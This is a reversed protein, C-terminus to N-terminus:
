QHPEVMYGSKTLIKRVSLCAPSNEPLTLLSEGKLNYSKVNNDYDIRGLYNEGTRKFHQEAKTDFEYNGVLYLNKYNIGATDAIKKVREIHKLSKLSPDLVLFLDDMRPIVKRNLHELGAPSDVIINTYNKGISPIIFEFLFNASRYDGRTWRPGLSILDFKKSTYQTYWKFLLPIKVFAPGGGLETFADEDEIDERLDSVTKLQKEEGAETKIKQAELDVGLMDALNQDPDIDLLLLPSALYKCALAVFTSKGTGGRGTSVIIKGTKDKSASAVVRIEKAASTIINEM